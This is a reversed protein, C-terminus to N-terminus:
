GLSAGELVRQINEGQLRRRRHPESLAAGIARWGRIAQALKMPPLIAQRFQRMM